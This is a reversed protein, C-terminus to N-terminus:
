KQSKFLNEVWTDFDEKPEGNNKAQYKKLVQNAQEESETIIKTIIKPHPPLVDLFQM